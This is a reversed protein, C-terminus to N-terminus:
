VQLAYCTQNICARDEFGLGNREKVNCMQNSYVGKEIDLGEKEESDKQHWQFGEM